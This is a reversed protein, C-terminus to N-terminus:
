KVGEYDYFFDINVCTFLKLLMSTSLVTTRLTHDGLRAADADDLPRDSIYNESRM